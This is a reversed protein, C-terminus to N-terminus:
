FFLYSRREEECHCFLLRKANRKQKRVPEFIHPQGFPILKDNRPGKGFCDRPYKLTDTLYISNVRDVVFDAGEEQHYLKILSSTDLLAKM